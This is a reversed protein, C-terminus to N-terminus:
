VNSQRALTRAVELATRTKGSGGPGTLTVLRATALLGQITELEVERDILSTMPVPLGTERMDDAAWNTARRASPRPVVDGSTPRPQGSVELRPQALAARLFEASLSLGRLPGSEYSHFLGRQQCQEILGAEAEATPVAEGMEWRRVTAVSYGLLGAWGQQTVGRQERLARLLVRAPIGGAGAIHAAHM